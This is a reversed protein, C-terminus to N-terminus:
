AEQFEEMERVVRHEAQMEKARLVDAFPKEEIKSDLWSILDFQLVGWLLYEPGYELLEERCTEFANIQEDHDVIYM